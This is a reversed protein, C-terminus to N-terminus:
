SFEKLLVYAIGAIIAFKILGGVPSSSKTAIVRDNRQSGQWADTDAHESGAGHRHRVIPEPVEAYGSRDYYTDVIDKAESLDMGSEQRLLKIANIKRGAEIERQIAESLEMM